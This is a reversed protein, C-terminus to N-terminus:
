CTLSTFISNKSIMGPLVFHNKPIKKIRDWHNPVFVTAGNLSGIIGAWWSFTSNSTVIEQASALVRLTQVANLDQPGFFELNGFIDELESKLEQDDSCVILKLKANRSQQFYDLALADSKNTMSLFDGRRIHLAQYQESKGIKLNRKVEKGLITIEESMIKPEQFFGTVIRPLVTGFPEIKYPNLQMHVGLLNTIKVSWRLNSSNLKEFVKTCIGLVDASKVYKVNRSNIVVLKELEIDITGHFRDGFLTIREDYKKSIFRAYSLQFLNNGLRGALQVSTM